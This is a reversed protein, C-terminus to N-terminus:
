LHSERDDSIHSQQSVSRINNRESEMTAGSSNLRDSYSNHSFQDENPSFLLPINEHSGCCGSDADKSTVSSESPPPLIVPVKVPPICSRRLYNADKYNDGQTLNGIQSTSYKAPADYQSTPTCGCFSQDM